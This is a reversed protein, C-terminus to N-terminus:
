HRGAQPASRRHANPNWGSTISGPSDSRSAWTPVTAEKRLLAVVDAPASSHEVPTAQLVALDRAAQAALREVHVPAAQTVLLLTAAATDHLMALQERDAKRRRTRSARQHGRHDRPGPTSPRRDQGRERDRAPPLVAITWGGLIPYVSAVADHWGSSPRRCGLRIRRDATAMVATSWQVPETSDGHHRGVGRRNVQPVTISRPSIPCRRDTRTRRCGRRHDVGRRRCHSNCPSHDPLWDTPPGRRSVGCFRRTLFEQCTRCLRLAVAAAALSSCQRVVTSIKAVEWRLRRRSVETSTDIPTM